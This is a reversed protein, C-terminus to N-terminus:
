GEGGIDRNYVHSFGEDAEIPYDQQVTHPYVRVYYHKKGFVTKRGIVFRGFIDICGSSPLKTIGFEHLIKKATKSSILSCKENPAGFSIFKSNPLIKM